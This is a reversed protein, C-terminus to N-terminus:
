RAISPLQQHDLTRRLCLIAHAHRFGNHLCAISWENTHQTRCEFQVNYVDQGTSNTTLVSQSRIAYSFKYQMTQSQQVSLYLLQLKSHIRFPPMGGLCRCRKRESQYSRKLEIGAGEADIMEKTVPKYRTTMVAGGVVAGGGACFNQEHYFAVDLSSNGYECLTSDINVFKNMEQHAVFGMSELVPVFTECFIEQRVVEKTTSRLTMPFVPSDDPVAATSMAVGPTMSRASMLNQSFEAVIVLLFKGSAMLPLFINQDLLNTPQKLM